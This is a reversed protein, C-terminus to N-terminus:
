LNSRESVDRGALMPLIRRSAGDWFGAPGTFTVPNRFTGFVLDWVPMSGYNYAHVGRAHHVSHAEPRQILYGLWRPTRLNLHEFMALQVGVLGVLAAGLPSLGLLVTIGATISSRVVLEFPHLVASGAVDIREASHHLQHMWRWLFSSTHITRHMWYQALEAACLGIAFEAALPLRALELLAHPALTAAIVAGPVSGLVAAIVQFAIGKALWFRVKPQERAPRIRELVLMLIFTLPILLPIKDAM